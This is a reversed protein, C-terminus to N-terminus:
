DRIDYRFNACVCNYLFSVVIFCLMETDSDVSMGTLDHSVERRGKLVNSTFLMYVM